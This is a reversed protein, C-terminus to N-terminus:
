AFSPVRGAFERANGSGVRQQHGKSFTIWFDTGNQEVRLGSASTYLVSSEGPDEAGLSIHGAILLFLAAFTRKMALDVIGRTALMMSKTSLLRDVM